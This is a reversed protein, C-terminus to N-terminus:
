YELGQTPSGIGATPILIGLSKPPPLQPFHLEPLSHPIVDQSKWTLELDFWRVGGERTALDDGPLILIKFQIERGHIM